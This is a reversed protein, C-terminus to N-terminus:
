ADYNEIVAIAIPLDIAARNEHFAQIQDAADFNTEAADPDACRRVQHEDRDIIALFGFRGTRRLDQEVPPSVLVGMFRQVSERPARVAPKVATVSNKCM